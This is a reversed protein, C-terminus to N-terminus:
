YKLSFSNTLFEDYIDVMEEKNLNGQSLKRHFFVGDPKRKPSYIWYKPTQLLIFILLTKYNVGTKVMDTNSM